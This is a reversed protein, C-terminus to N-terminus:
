RPSERCHPCGYRGVEASGEGSSGSASQLSDDPTSLHSPFSSSGVSPSRALSKGPSTSPSPVPATVSPWPAASPATLGAARQQQTAAIHLAALDNHLPRPQAPLAMTHGSPTPVPASEMSRRAPSATREDMRESAAAALSSLADIAGHMHPALYGAPASSSASFRRGSGDDISERPSAENPYPTAPSSGASDASARDSLALASTDRMRPDDVPAWAPTGSREEASTNSSTRPRNFRAANSADAAHLHADSGRKRMRVAPDAASWGSSSTTSTTSVMSHRRDDELVSRRRSLDPTSSTSPPGSQWMHPSPWTTHYPQPAAASSLSNSRPRGFSTASALSSPTPTSASTLPPSMPPYGVLGSPRPYLPGGTPSVLQMSPLRQSGASSREQSGLPAKGYTASQERADHLDTAIPPLAQLLSQKNPSAVSGPVSPVAAATTPASQPLVSTSPTSPRAFPSIDTWAGPLGFHQLSPEGTAPNTAVASNGDVVGATM